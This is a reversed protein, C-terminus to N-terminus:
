EVHLQLAKFCLIRLEENIFRKDSMESIQFIYDSGVLSSSHNQICLHRNLILFINNKKARMYKKELVKGKNIYLMIESM